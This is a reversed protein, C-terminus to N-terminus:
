ESAGGFTDQLVESSSDNDIFIINLIYSLGKSQRWFENKGFVNKSISSQCYLQIQHM